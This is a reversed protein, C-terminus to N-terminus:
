ANTYSKAHIVSNMLHTAPICNLPFGQVKVIEKEWKWKMILFPDGLSNLLKIDSDPALELSKLTLAEIARPISDAIVQFLNGAKDTFLILKQM